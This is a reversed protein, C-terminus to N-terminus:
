ERLELGDSLKVKKKPAGMNGYTMSWREHVVEKNREYWAKEIERKKARQEKTVLIM